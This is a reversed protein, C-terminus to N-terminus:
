QKVLTITDVEGDGYDQSATMTNGNVSIELEVVEQYEEGDDSQNIILVLRDADDEYSWAGESDDSYSETFYVLEECTSSSYDLYSDEGSAEFRLAGNESFTFRIFETFETEEVEVNESTQGDACVVSTTYSDVLPQGVIITETMGDYEYVIQTVNWIGVLFESNAGGLEGVTICVRVINSVRAEADYVCVDVCFEGPAINDPLDIYFEPYFSTTRGSSFASAPIDFYSDSGPIQLYVGEADGNLLDLDLQLQGGQVAFTDDEDDLTPADPDTSPAPPTGTEVTAGTIEIADTIANADTLDILDDEEDIKGGDDDSCHSLVLISIFCIM